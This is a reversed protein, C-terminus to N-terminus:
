IQTGIGTNCIHRSNQVEHRTHQAPLEYWCIWGFTLSGPGPKGSSEREELGVSLSLTPENYQLSPFFLSRSSRPTWNKLLNEALNTLNEALNPDKFMCILFWKLIDDAYGTFSAFYTFVIYIAHYYWTAGTLLFFLFAHPNFIQNVSNQQSKLNTM